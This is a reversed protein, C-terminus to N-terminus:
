PLTFGGDERLRMALVGELSAIRREVDRRDMTERGRVEVWLIVQRCRREAETKGQIHSNAFRNPTHSGEDLQRFTAAAGFLNREGALLQDIVRFKAEIRRAIIAAEPPAEDIISTQMAQEIPVVDVGGRRLWPSRAVVLTLATSIFLAAVFCRMWTAMRSSM